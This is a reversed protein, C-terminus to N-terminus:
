RLIYFNKKKIKKQERFLIKELNKKGNIQTKVRWTLPIIKKKATREYELSLCLFALWFSQMCPCPYNVLLRRQLTGMECFGGLYWFRYYNQKPSSLNELSSNDWKQGSLRTWSPLPPLILVSPQLCRDEM